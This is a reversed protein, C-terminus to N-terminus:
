SRTKDLRHSRPLSRRHQIHQRGSVHFGEPDPSEPDLWRYSLAHFLLMFREVGQGEGLKTVLSKLVRVLESYTWFARSPLQQRPKLQWEGAPRGELKRKRLEVLYSGRLPAISGNEVSHLLARVGTFTGRRGKTPKFVATGTRVICDWDVTGRDGEKAQMERLERRSFELPMKESWMEMLRTELETGKGLERGSASQELPLWRAGPMGDILDPHYGAHVLDKRRFGLQKVISVSYGASRMDRATYGAGRLCAAVQKDAETTPRQKKPKMREPPEGGRLSKEHGGRSMWEQPSITGQAGDARLAKNVWDQMEYITYGAARLRQGTAWSALAPNEVSARVPEVVTSGEHIPQAEEVVVKGKTTEEVDVIIGDLDHRFSNGWMVNRPELSEADPGIQVDEGGRAIRLHKGIDAKSFVGALLKGAVSSGFNAAFDSIDDQTAVFNLEFKAARLEALPYKAKQLQLLIKEQTEGAKELAAKLDRASFFAAKLEEISYGAELLEFASYGRSWKHEKEPRGDDERLWADPDDEGSPKQLRFNWRGERMMIATFGLSRLQAASFNCERLQIPLFGGTPTTLPKYADRTRIEKGAVYEPRQLWMGRTGRRTKRQWMATPPPKIVGERWTGSALQNRAERLKVDDFEEPWSRLFGGSASAVTGKTVHESFPTMSTKPMGTDPHLSPAARHAPASTPSSEGLSSKTVNRLMALPKEDVVSEDRAM